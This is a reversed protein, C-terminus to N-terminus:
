KASAAAAFKANGTPFGKAVGLLVTAVANITAKGFINNGIRPVHRM